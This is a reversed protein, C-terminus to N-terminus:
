SKFSKYTTEYSELTRQLITLVESKTIFQDPKFTGDPYGTIIGRAAAAKLGLAWAPLDDTFDTNQESIPFLRGVANAAEARTLYNGPELLNQYGVIVESDILPKIKDLDQPSIESLDLFREALIKDDQVIKLPCSPFPVTLDALSKFFDLRTVKEDPNKNYEKAVDILRSVRVRSYNEKNFVFDLVMIKGATDINGVEIIISRPTGSIFKIGPENKTDQIQNKEGDLFDPWEVYNKYTEATPTRMYCAGVPLSVMVKNGPKVPVSVDKKGTIRLTGLVRNEGFSVTPTSMVTNVTNGESTKEGISGPDSVTVVIDSAAIGVSPVGLSILCLAPLVMLTLIKRLKTHVRIGGSLKGKIDLKVV